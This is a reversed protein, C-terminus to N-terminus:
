TVGLGGPRLRSRVLEFYEVSYLNGAFASAPRLADAEIVDFRAASRMLFARGDGFSIRIRGDTLLRNLGPDPRRRHLLLLSPLQSSVIEVCEM